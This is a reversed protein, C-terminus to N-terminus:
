KKRDKFYQPAQFIDNPAIIRQSMIPSICPLVNIPITSNADISFGDKLEIYNNGLIAMTSNNSIPDNCGSGGITVSSYIKSKYTSPNLNSCFTKTTDCAEKQQWVKVYDIEYTYPFVTNITDVIECWGQAFLQFNVDVIMNMKVLSDPKINQNTLSRIKQGDFYFDIGTNTWLAGATHWTNASVNTYQFPNSAVYQFNNQGLYIVNNTLLNDDGHFEFVDIESWWNNLNPDASYLWFNPGYGSYTAPNTPLPPLKFKIEYYGYKFYQRSTLQTTVYKFPRQKVTFVNGPWSWTEGTVNQKKVLIKATGNNIKLVNTDNYNYERYALDVWTGGYPSGCTSSVQVKNTDSYGPGWFFRRLWKNQDLSNGTFEDVFVNTYSSDLFSPVQSFSINLFGNLMIILVLKYKNFTRM